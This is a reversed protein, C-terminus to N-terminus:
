LVDYSLMTLGLAKSFAKEAKERGEKSGMLMCGVLTLARPNRSMLKLAEKSYLLAQKFDSLKSYAAV